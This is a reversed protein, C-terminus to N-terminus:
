WDRTRWSSCLRTCRVPARVGYDKRAIPRENLLALVALRVDGRRGRGGRMSTEGHRSEDGRSHGHGHGGVHREGRGGRRGPRGEFQDVEGIETFRPRGHPSLNFDRNRM